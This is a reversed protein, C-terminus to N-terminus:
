DTESGVVLCLIQASMWLTGHRDSSLVLLRLELQSHEGKRTVIRYIKQELVDSNPLHFTMGSAGARGGHLLLDLRPELQVLDLPVYWWDLM